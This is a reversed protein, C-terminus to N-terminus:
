KHQHPMGWDYVYFRQLYTCHKIICDLPRIPIGLHVQFSCYPIYKQNDEDRMTPIELVKDQLHKGKRNHTM